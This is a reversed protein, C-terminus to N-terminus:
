KEEIEGEDVKVLNINVKKTEGVVKINDGYLEKVIKADKKIVPRLPYWTM